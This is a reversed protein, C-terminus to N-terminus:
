DFPQLAIKVGNATTLSIGAIIRPKYGEVAIIEFNQLLKTVIVFAEIQALTAGICTRTGYGFPFFGKKAWTFDEHGDFREPRFETSNEWVAPDRNILCMPILVTCDKPIVVGCEEIAVDCAATRMVMPIVSYHRLTEKIVAQFYKAASFHGSTIDKSGDTINNIEERVKNQIDPHISLVYCLYAILYSSTDHGASLLTVSHDLIEKQTMNSLLMASLCNDLKTSTEIMLKRKMNAIVEQFRCWFLQKVRDMRHVWPLIKWVPLNMQMSRGLILSGETVADCFQRETDPQNSFDDGTSFRMFIRLVIPSLLEHIDLTLSTKEQIENRIEDLCKDMVENMTAIQQNISSRVFYKGFLARDKKHKEGNSTVLGEGFAYAFHYTYNTGKPFSISDALIRRVALPDCVVLFGKMLVFYRYIPGYQRRLRSMQKLFLLIAEISLTNGLLPMPFPGPFKRLLWLQRLWLQFVYGGSVLLFSVLITLSIGLM